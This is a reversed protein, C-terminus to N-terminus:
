AQILQLAQQEIAAQDVMKGLQQDDYVGGFAELAAQKLALPYAESITEGLEAETLYRGGVKRRRNIRIIQQTANLISLEWSRTIRQEAAQKILHQLLILAFSYIKNIKDERSMEEMETILDLAEAYRQQEIYERLELLEEMGIDEEHV